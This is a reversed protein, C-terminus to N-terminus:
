HKHPKRTPAANKNRPSPRTQAVNALTKELRRMAAAASAPM